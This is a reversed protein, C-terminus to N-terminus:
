RVVRIAFLKRARESDKGAEMEIVYDGDTFPALQLSAVLWRTGHEDIRERTAVPVDLATGARDLIRAGAITAGEALPAELTVRETRRYRSDSAPQLARAIGRYALVDGILADSAGPVQTSTDVAGFDGTGKARARVDVRARGPGLPVRLSIGARMAPVDRTEIVDGADSKITVLMEGGDAWAPSTRAQVGLEATVVIAGDVRSARAFLARPTSLDSLGALAEGLEEDAASREAFVRGEAAAAMEEETPAFYGRRATLRVGPKKVKVTLKRYGGDFKTNTSYYGLLYYTTLSAALQQFQEDMNNNLVFARGDTNEALEQLGHRRAEVRASEEKASIVGQSIPQDFPALGRPDIPYFAVNARQAKEMLTRHTGRSDMMALRAAEENCDGSGRRDVPDGPGSPQGGPRLRGRDVIVAQPIAGKTASMVRDLLGEDPGFLRWGQTVVILFKREERIDALKDILRDLFTLSQLERHRARLERHIDASRGRENVSAFCSDFLDETSNQALMQDYTGWTWYKELMADVTTTKRALTFSAPALETTIVGFLDRPGILRDLMGVLPRRLEHSGGVGVHGSDLVIGFVRARPDKALAEGESQSGPDVRAIEPEPEIRVFEFADIQQLKGDEYLEFDDATLGEIPKGQADVPYADVRVFRAGGRFTPQAQAQQPSQDQAFVAVCALVAAAAAAIAVSTFGVRRM